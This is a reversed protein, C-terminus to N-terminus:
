LYPLDGLFRAFCTSKRGAGLVSLWSGTRLEVPAVVRMWTIGALFHIWRVILGFWDADGAGVGAMGLYLVILGVSLAFGAGLTQYPDELFKM